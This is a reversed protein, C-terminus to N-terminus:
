CFNLTSREQILFNQTLTTLIQYGSMVTQSFFSIEAFITVELVMFIFYRTFVFSFGQTYLGYEVKAVTFIVSLGFVLEKASFAVLTHAYTTFYVAGM